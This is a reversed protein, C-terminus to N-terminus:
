PRLNEFVSKPLSDKLHFHLYWTYNWVTFGYGPSTSVAHAAVNRARASGVTAPQSSSNTHLSDERELAMQLTTAIFNTANPDLRTWKVKFTYTSSLLRSTKWSCSLSRTNLKLWSARSAPSATRWATPTCNSGCLDAAACLRCDTLWEEMVMAAMVTM